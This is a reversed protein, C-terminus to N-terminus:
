SQLGGAVGGASGELVELLGGVLHLSGTVLVVKRVGEGVRDGRVVGVAEEITRRVEVQAEPEVERWAAALENQVALASVDDANTGVSTLDPTTGASAYTTNTSFLVTAFTPESSATSSSLVPTLSAHLALALSTPTRERTQQNFILYTKLKAAAGSPSTLAALQGAFWQGALTISDLTHGGDICWTINHAPEHRTDCRGPWSTAALGAAILSQSTPTTPSISRNLLYSTTIAVALSANTRQFTAQLGIPWTGNSISPHTDTYTLTTPVKAAVTNLIAKASPDQSSPTYCPASPKMIGAKHWAIEPLTSGLVGVHEIGLSTIGTVAPAPLNTSDYAGGIGCEIVAADVGESKFTHFAM